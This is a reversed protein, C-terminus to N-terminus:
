YIAGKDNPNCCLAWIALLSGILKEAEELKARHCHTVMVPWQWKKEILV